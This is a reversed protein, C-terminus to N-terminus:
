KNIYAQESANPRYRAWVRIQGAAAGSAGLQHALTAVISGSAALDQGIKIPYYGTAVLSHTLKGYKSATTGDGFSISFPQDFAVVVQVILSDLFTNAPHTFVTAPSSDDFDIADGEVEFVAMKLLDNLPFDLPPMGKLHKSM